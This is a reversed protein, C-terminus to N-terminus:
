EIYIKVDLKIGEKVEVVLVNVGIIFYKVIESEKKSKWGRGKIVYKNVCLKIVLIVVKIM